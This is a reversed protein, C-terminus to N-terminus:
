AALNTLYKPEKDSVEGNILVVPKRKKRLLPYTQRHPEHDYGEPRHWGFDLSTTARAETLMWQLTHDALGNVVYGGGIDAHNGKAWVEKVCIRANMLRPAFARRDEDIAVVHRAQRVLTSVSLDGFLPDQQFRGFPLFAAVTDFCGLFATEMGDKAIKHCFMRAIAAGRSFGFVAVHDGAEFQAVLADYGADRIDRFGRGLGAGFWRDYLDDEDNGPGPYYYVSQSPRTALDRILRINTPYRDDDGNCTGDFCVVHFM